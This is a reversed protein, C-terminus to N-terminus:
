LKKVKLWKRANDSVEEAITPLVREIKRKKDSNKNFWQHSAVDNKDPKENSRQNTEVKPYSVVNGGMFTSYNLIALLASDNPIPWSTYAERKKEEKAYTGSTYDIERVIIEKINIKISGFGLPKARGIKHAHQVSQNIDLVNCLQDLEHETIREFYVTFTFRGGKDIPQIITEMEEKSKTKLPYIQPEHHWYFKRGRVKLDSAKLPIRNGKVKKYDYTWYLDNGLKETYFEVTGPKPEGLPPLTMKDLFSVGEEAIGDSFRLRSAQIGKENVFGFLHCAPCLKNKCTCPTYDGQEKLIDQLENQFVEQSFVAPSLHSIKGKKDQSYYVPLKNKVTAKELLEKNIAYPKKTNKKNIKNGRERNEHYLAIVDRLRKIELKPIEVLYEKKRNNEFKVFVSEHHKKKGFPEALYVIGKQYGEKYTLSYNEVVYPRNKDKNYKQQSKKIYITQGTQIDSRKIYKGHKGVKDYQFSTNLMVRECSELKWGRDTKYLLGPRKPDMSRRHFAKKNIQSLCGNYAAEFVSRIMGRIESGPIVPREDNPYHFFMEDDVGDPIFTPTLTELTCTIKGTLCGVERNQKDCQAALPVFNYPNVFRENNQNTTM